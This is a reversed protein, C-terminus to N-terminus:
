VLSQPREIMQQYVMSQLVMQDQPQLESFELGFHALPVAGAVATEEGFVARVVARLSLPIDVNHLKIQFKMQVTDGVDAINRRGDLLAGNASLNSIVAPVATVGPRESQIQAIIKTKVRPAKRVVTGQVEPPFSVHLYPYPLKAARLVDCAFAFANQSAFVRVVLQDREILELRAGNANLPATLLLSQQPVFGIVRVNCRETSLSAPPQIQLRDGVKLNMADFPFSTRPGSDEDAKPPELEATRM